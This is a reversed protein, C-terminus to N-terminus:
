KRLISIRDGPKLLPDVAKGAIIEKLKYRTPVLFGNGNDRSIEAFKAQPDPGGAALMAQMLTLGRRFTKEGPFKIEGGIYIFQTKNPSLSIVDGARVLFNMEAAQSLDIEHIENSENRVVTVKAAEPLPQADAVVVYLPIAERRLFKTGAEKVLGSVLVAHSAYDRVGVAAKPDEVIARKRLDEAIRDGIEEVTLGAVTMPENLLPHELLGTATITFLTSEQGSTNLRVDLVDSPGVRYIKTLSVPEVRPVPAVTMAVREGIANQEPPSPLKAVENAAPKAFVVTQPGPQKNSLDNVKVAPPVVAQSVPKKVEVIAATNQRFSTPNVETARKKLAAERAEGQKHNLSAARNLNDIAKQWDRLKFYTRGLAAYADAYEPDFQLAQRLSDVAQMFQGSDTLELGREYCKKANPCDFSNRIKNDTQSANNGPTQAVTNSTVLSLVALVLISRLM